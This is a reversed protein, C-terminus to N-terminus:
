GVLGVGWGPASVRSWCPTTCGRTSWRCRRQAGTGWRAGRWPAAARTTSCRMRTVLRTSLLVVRSHGQLTCRRRCRVPQGARGCGCARVQALRWARRGARVAHEPEGRGAAPGDSRPAPTHPCPLGRRIARPCAPRRHLPLTARPVAPPPLALSQRSRQSVSATGGLALWASRLHWLALPPPRQLSPWCALVWQFHPHPRPLTAPYLKGERAESWALEAARAPWDLCMLACRYHGRDSSSRGVGHRALPPAPPHRPRDTGEAPM